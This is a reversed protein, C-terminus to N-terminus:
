VKHSKHTVWISKTPSLGPHTAYRYGLFQTVFHLYAQYQSSVEIGHFVLTQLCLRPQMRLATRELNALSAATPTSQGQYELECSLLQPMAWIIHFFGVASAASWATFNLEVVSAFNTLLPVLYNQVYRPPFRRCGIDIGLKQCKQLQPLSLIQTLPAYAEVSINITKVYGALEPRATLTDVILGAAKSDWVRLEHYLNYRSRPRWASCTLACARLTDYRGNWPKFGFCEDIVCECVEIPLRSNEM